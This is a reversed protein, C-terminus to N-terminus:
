RKSVKRAVRFVNAGFFMVVFSAAIAAFQIVFECDFVVGANIKQVFFIIHVVVLGIIYTISLDTMRLDIIASSIIGFLFRSFAIAILSYASVREVSVRAGSFIYNIFNISIIDYLLFCGVLILSAQWHYYKKM